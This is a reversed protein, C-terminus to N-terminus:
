TSELKKNDPIIAMLVEDKCSTKGLSLTYKPTLNIQTKGYLLNFGEARIMFNYINNHVCRLIIFFDISPKATDLMVTLSNM